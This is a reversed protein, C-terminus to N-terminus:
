AASAAEEVRDKILALNFITRLKKQLIRKFYTRETSNLVELAKGNRPLVVNEHLVSIGKLPREAEEVAEKGEPPFYMGSFPSIGTRGEFYIIAFSYWDNLMTPQGIHMEASVAPAAKQARMYERWRRRKEIEDDDYYYDDDEDEDEIDDCDEFSEPLEPPPPPLAAAYRLPSGVWLPDAYEWTFGTAPFGGFAASEIDIIYPRDQYVLINAPKLDGLIIGRKHIALLLKHLKTFFKTVWKQLDKQKKRWEPNVIESLSYANTIERMVIGRVFDEGELIVGKPGVVGKPLKPLVELKKRLHLGRKKAMERLRASNPDNGPYDAETKYVKVLKGKLGPVRFLRGEAGQYLAKEEDLMVVHGAIELRIM